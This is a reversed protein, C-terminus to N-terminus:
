VLGCQCVCDNVKFGYVRNLEESYIVTFQVNEFLFERQRFIRERPVCILNLPAGSCTSLALSFIDSM